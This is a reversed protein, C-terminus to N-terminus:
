RKGALEQAFQERTVMQIETFLEMYKKQLTYTKGTGPPGYLITNLAPMRRPPNSDQDEIGILKKLKEVYDPYKTIDTLTKLVIPGKTEIWNGKKVWKMTRITAIRPGAPMMVTPVRKLAMALTSREAKKPSSSMAQSSMSSFEWAARADNTPRNKLKLAKKLAKEIDGKSEYTQLNELEDAGYVM